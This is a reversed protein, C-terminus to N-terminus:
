CPQQGGGDKSVQNPVEYTTRKGSYFEAMFVYNGPHVLFESVIESWRVHLELFDTRPTSAATASFISGDYLNSFHCCSGIIFAPMCKM